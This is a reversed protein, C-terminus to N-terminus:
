LFDDFNTPVLWFFFLSVKHGMFDMMCQSRARRIKRSLKDGKRPVAGGGSPGGPGNVVGGNTGEKRAELEKLEVVRLGEWEGVVLVGVEEYLWIVLMEIRIWVGVLWRKGMLHLRLVIFVIGQGRWREVSQATTVDWIRVVNDLDPLLMSSTPPSLLPLLM